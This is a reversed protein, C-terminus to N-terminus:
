GAVELNTQRNTTKPVASAPLTISVTTGSDDSHIRIQGGLQRVRERMGRVGVGSASSELEILKEVSMGKGSDRVEVSVIGDSLAVRIVATRSGSHRHVNTLCEQVVRFVVLEADRSFRGLDQPLDLSIKLGSREALGEVYWRLAASVGIEDLLPPHLLYSTTRIEQTLQEVTKQAESVQEQLRPNGGAALQAVTSLNMGLVTLTQGASDHLERAIHRREDDQVHMLSRSLTQVTEAQQLVEANREELEKTRVRVESELTEALKRFREESDLIRLRANVQASIDRFYCVVGYGGEPLPIRDVRWEYYEQVGRDRRLETSEAMHYPEGTELTRRFIRIVEDAHEPPWLLHIVEDFRRGILDPIDGFVALATPNVDRIQFEADVTYLGLPARNLLTQYQASRQRLAQEAQKRDTVDWHVGRLRTAGTIPDRSARGREEIWAWRGDRPRIIRFETHYDRGFNSADEFLSRHRARDLPHVLQFVEDSTLFSQGPAVGFIESSLSSLTVRDGASNWEFTGMRGAELSMQLREESDRLKAEIKAREIAAWIREAVEVLLRVEHNSFQHAQRYHVFLIAALRGAKVVPIKVAAGMQLVADAAKQDDRLTVDNAIDNQVVIRGTRLEKLLVEGYDRRGEIRPVDTAFQGTIAVTQSDGQDEAYGVRNARLHECVIRAATEQIEIADALPRLSDSLTLLFAQREESERLVLETRKRETIDGILGIMREAADGDSFHVQATVSIWREQGDRRRIRIEEELKGDGDPRLSKKVGQAYRERDEPHIMSDLAAALTLEKTSSLGFIELIRRDAECRDDDPHWAFAGMQSAKLSLQLKNESERIAKDAGNRVHALQLHTQVRAILERASFPKVLYDDAGADLGEVRSEEGARASLLIFPLTKTAAHARLERLLGFGDLEPMMVDCLVLDPARKNIAELAARGNAVAQVEFREALLRMVYLRMDANDDVILVRSRGPRESTVPAPVAMLEYDPAIPSAADIQGTQPLWRLAEEVFPAAGTATSSLSRDGGVQDPALHDQGLPISVIFTSGQEPVSEVRIFGGHLKVLEHVLALGIGSGEHTRSRVNSVRHFRDFLRPIEEAPIGVGTDRVRLEATRGVQQLRVEIEGEFTFKFANSVLNLVVKEWMDRDVYAVESPPKCNVLLRLGARETASRFVSALEATFSAIDTAQYVAHVRGAEIRSFDLLTNVLRLLRAGNRNALELQEKATPSLHTQSRALLDQLPGLMLTLPTRFEHSVNSFFVTKARDIEALAEARKREEDYARANAISAAIQGAVLDIFGRYGADLQRYPNLGAVLIGAPNEQGPSTIPVLLAKSPPTDWSGCPVSGFREPSMEVTVSSKTKLLENVPWLQDKGGVIIRSPAVPQGPEVGTQCALWAEKGGDIFLYTLSFPLDQQNDSLSRVISECVEKEAITTNLEAALSRLTSLRREGIIRDTEETVVCLHGAVKGDDDSLPSYSFTHYTEERYGSRELFLLLAEDWTAEGSELVKQIRPGIDNWIEAWVQRSPKGLAWPHKKGLTMRAYADNYFFTLEPGWSMWMAFRSTLLMRVVTKLSQPWGDIPGLPTKAWDFERILQGLAGGGRTLEKANASDQAPLPQDIQSDRNEAVREVTSLLDRSLQAKTVVAKAGVAAAQSRAVSADNQTVIVVKCDPFERLINRTAELGDMRPMSIDMLVIDPGLHRAKEIADLGDAAEGCVSWGARSSLLERIGKRVMEHDDVLLVRLSAV